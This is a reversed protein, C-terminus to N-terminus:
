RLNVGGTFALGDTLGNFDEFAADVLKADGFRDNLRDAFVPNEDLQRAQTLIDAGFGAAGDFLGGVKFEQEDVLVIVLKLGFGAAWIETRREAVRVQRLVHFAGFAPFRRAM